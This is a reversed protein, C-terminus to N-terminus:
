MRDIETVPTNLKVTERHVDFLAEPLTKLGEEFSGVSPPSRRRILSKVVHIHVSRSIGINDLAKALSHEVYMEDPHSGYLGGYLPGIFYDAVEHGFARTLYEHVTENKKPPGALP